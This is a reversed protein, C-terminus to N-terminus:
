LWGRRGAISDVWGHLYGQWDQAAAGRHEVTFRHFSDSGEGLLLGPKKDLELVVDVGRDDAVFSLELENLGRYRGPAYFEIEQYFPLRQRTGRLRGRELDAHKFRFGLSVLADLVVRQAELPAVRVADLDGPDLAGAVSLRTNVGLNMGALHSGGYWTVPTEFPVNMEFPVSFRAGPTLHLEGGLRQRTFEVDSSHESDGSEVEVRAQLGVTLEEVRQDVTGGEIRVEGRVVGGPVVDAETLVTEVSAGGFGLGALLRKFAM